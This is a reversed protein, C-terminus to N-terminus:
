HYQYLLSEIWLPMSGSPDGKVEADYEDLVFQIIDDTLEVNISKAVNHIDAKTISTTPMPM